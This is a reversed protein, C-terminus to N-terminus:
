EATDVEKSSVFAAKCRAVAAAEEEGRGHQQAGDCASTEVKMRRWGMEWSAGWALERGHSERDEDKWARIERYSECLDHRM